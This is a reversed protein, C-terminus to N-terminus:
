VQFLEAWKVDQLYDSDITADPIKVPFTNPHGLQQIITTENKKTAEHLGVSQGMNLFANFSFDGDLRSAIPHVM